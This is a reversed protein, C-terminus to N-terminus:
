FVLHNGVINPVYYKRREITGNSLLGTLRFRRSWLPVTNHQVISYQQVRGGITARARQKNSTVRRTGNGGEACAATSLFARPRVFSCTTIFGQGGGAFSGLFLTVFSATCVRTVVPCLLAACRKKRLSKVFLVSMYRLWFRSMSFSRFNLAISWLQGISRHPPPNGGKSWKQASKILPETDGARAVGRNWATM